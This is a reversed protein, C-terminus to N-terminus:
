FSFVSNWMNNECTKLIDQIASRKAAIENSPFSEDKNSQPRITYNMFKRFNSKSKGGINKFEARMETWTPEKTLAHEDILILIYPVHQRCGQGDILTHLKEILKRTNYKPNICNYFGKAKADIKSAIENMAEEYPNDLRLTRQPQTKAKLFNLFNIAKAADIALASPLIDLQAKAIYEKHRSQESLLAKTATDIHKCLEQFLKTNDELQNEIYRYANWAFELEQHTRSQQSLKREYDAYYRAQNITLTRVKDELRELKGQLRKNENQCQLLEQDTPIM